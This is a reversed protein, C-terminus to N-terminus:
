VDKIWKTIIQQKNTYDSDLTLIKLEPLNFLNLTYAVATDLQERTEYIEELSDVKKLGTLYTKLYIYEGCNNIEILLKIGPGGKKPVAM